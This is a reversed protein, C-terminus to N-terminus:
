GGVGERYPGFERENIEAFWNTRPDISAGM